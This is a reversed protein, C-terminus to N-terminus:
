YLQATGGKVDEIIIKANTDNGSGDKLKLADNKNTRNNGSVEIPNNQLISDMLNLRSPFMRPLKLSRLIEVVLM